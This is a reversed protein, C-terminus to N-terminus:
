RCFIDVLFSLPLFVAVSFSVEAVAAIDRERSERVREGGCMRVFAKRKFFLMLLIVFIGRPFWVAEVHLMQAAWVVTMVACLKKARRRGILIPLTRRGAATDKEMDCTNNVFMLQAVMLMMPVSKYLTWYDIIGTLASFVGLPILGGMVFGAVAEGLPLHSLPTRGASYSVAAAAGICGIVLPEVGTHLAVYIGLFAGIGLCVLGARLTPRPNEIKLFVLPADTEGAISSATDNGRVFDYYDNLLNVGANFLLPILVVVLTFFAPLEGRREYSLIVGVASPALACLLVAGPNAIKILLPLSVRGEKDM